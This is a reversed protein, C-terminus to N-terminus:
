LGLVDAQFAPWYIEETWHKLHQLSLLLKLMGEESATDGIPAQHFLVARGDREVTAVFMWVHGQVIIGPLFQIQMLTPCTFRLSRLQASHWTAMQTVAKGYEEGHKKTEISIVIPDKNLRGSDVHNITGLPRRRCVEKIASKTRSEEAPRISVCFDVLHSSSNPKFDTVIHASPCYQYDTLRRSRKEKRFVWALLPGHVDMNWSAESDNETFCLAADEVMGDIFDRAPYRYQVASSLLSAKTNDHYTFEDLTAFQDKLDVPVIQIGRQIRQLDRRLIKLSEPQWHEFQGFTQIDYGTEEELAAGRQKKSPSSAKSRSSRQSQSRSSSAGSTSYGDHDLDQFLRGYQKPARPTTDDQLAQPIINSGDSSSQDYEDSDNVERPRKGNGKGKGPLPMDNLPPTPLRGVSSEHNTKVRKPRPETDDYGKAAPCPSITDLWLPIDCSSM